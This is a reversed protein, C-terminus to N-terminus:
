VTLIAYSMKSGRSKIWLGSCDISPDARETWRPKTWGWMRLYKTPLAMILTFPQLHSCWGRPVLGLRCGGPVCWSQQLVFNPGEWGNDTKALCDCDM